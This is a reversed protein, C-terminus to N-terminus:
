KLFHNLTTSYKLDKNIYPRIYESFKEIIYSLLSLSSLITFDKPKSIISFITKSKYNRIYLTLIDKKTWALRFRVGEILNGADLEKKLDDRYSAQTAEGYEYTVKRGGKIPEHSSFGTIARIDVNPDRNLFEVFNLWLM